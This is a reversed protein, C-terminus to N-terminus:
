RSALVAQVHMTLLQQTMSLSPQDQLETQKHSPCIDSATDPELNYEAIQHQRLSSTSNKSPAALSM